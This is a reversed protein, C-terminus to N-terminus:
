YCNLTILLTTARVMLSRYKPKHVLLIKDLDTSENGTEDDSM